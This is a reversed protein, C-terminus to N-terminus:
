FEKKEVRFIYWDSIKLVYSIKDTTLPSGEYNNFTKHTFLARFSFSLDIAKHARGMQNGVM